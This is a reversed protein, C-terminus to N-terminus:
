GGSYPVRVSYRTEASLIYAVLNNAVRTAVPDDGYRGALKLQSMVMMGKGLALDSVVSKALVYAHYREGFYEAPAPRIIGRRRVPGMVRNFIVGRNGNWCDFNRQELGNFLPHTPEVMEVHRFPGAEVIKEELLWPICEKPDRVPYLPFGNRHQEFSLLRGGNEIWQRIRGGANIVVDDVSRAGIILVEYSDLGDFDKLVHYGLEMADLIPKTSPYEAGPKAGSYFAVKRDTSAQYAIDRPAAVYVDRQQEDLQQAGDLLTMVLRYWGTKLDTPMAYSFGLTRRGRGGAKGFMLEKACLMKGEADRFAVRATYDRSRHADNYATIKANLTGRGAILNHDFANVMLYGPDWWCRNGQGRSHRLALQAQHLNRPYVNQPPIAEFWIGDPLESRVTPRDTTLAVFNMSEPGFGPSPYQVPMQSQISWFTGRAACNKSDGTSGGSRWIRAGTGVDIDTFLNEYTCHMHHDFCLNVGTGDSFVNGMACRNFQPEYDISLILDVSWFSKFNFRTILNDPNIVLVGYRGVM